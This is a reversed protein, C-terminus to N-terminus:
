LVFTSILCILILHFIYITYIKWTNSIESNSGWNVGKEMNQAFTRQALFESSLSVMTNVSQYRRRVPM